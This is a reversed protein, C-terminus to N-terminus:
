FFTLLLGSSCVSAEGYEVFGDISVKGTLLRRWGTCRRDLYKFLLASLM